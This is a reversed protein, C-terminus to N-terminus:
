NLVSRREFLCVALLERETQVSGLQVTEVHSRVRVRMRVAVAACWAHTVDRPLIPISTTRAPETQTMVFAYETTPTKIHLLIFIFM